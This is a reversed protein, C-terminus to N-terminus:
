LVIVQPIYNTAYIHRHFLVDPNPKCTLSWLCNDIGHQGRESAPKLFVNQHFLRGQWLLVSNKQPLDFIVEVRHRVPSVELSSTKKQNTRCRHGKQIKINVTICRQYPSREGVYSATM